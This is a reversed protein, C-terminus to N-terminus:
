RGIWCLYHTRLWPVANLLTYLVPSVRCVARALPPALTVRRAHVHGDPFLTVIERFPVGRVDANRPNDYAFDYWLVGGGPKVLQWLRRALRARFDPDLISTFVTSQVVIDFSRDPLALQSADGPLLTVASPLLERAMRLRDELLDNGVLHEGRFGLSLFLQLLMGNGCGIELVRRRAFPEMGAKKLARLIARAREQDILMVHLLNPAYRDVPEAARRAYRETIADCESPEAQRPEAPEAQRPQLGPRCAERSMDPQTM